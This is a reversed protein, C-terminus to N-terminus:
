LGQLINKINHWTKINYKMDCTDTCSYNNINISQRQRQGEQDVPEPDAWWRRESGPSPPGSPPCQSQWPPQLPVCVGVRHWPEHGCRRVSSDWRQEWWGDPPWRRSHPLCCQLYKLREKNVNRINRTEKALKGDNEFVKMNQKNRWSRIISRSPKSMRRGLTLSLQQSSFLLLKDSSCRHSLETDWINEAAM